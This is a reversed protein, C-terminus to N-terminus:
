ASATYKKLVLVANHGGFGLNISLAIDVPHHIMQNPVYDLDCDPDPTDLNITPPIDGTQLVMASVATEVAGAGGLLHGTMSKTSSIKLRYAHEGFARKIAATEFKDNLKTSTGHANIYGVAEPTVQADAMARRLCLGLGKGEPDPATIHYADCTAGYGLLEAYIHAGRRQAHELTEMVLVVSGEGMVFGDRALDFPRSAKQPADNFSTCMAKMACFGAFSARTLPAESGGALMIDVEGHRLMRLSEGIAHTSSSCASVIGYNPGLAGTEIAVMGSAMNPIMAPILFPSVKRPGHEALIRVNNEVTELGGVGSGIMVGFREKDVNALDLKGDLVALKSAAVAYQIYPDFRRAEKPDMWKAAEFGVVQAGVQCPYPGPDFRTIRSIGSKGALLNSWFEPLSHGVATVVGIGTIVM